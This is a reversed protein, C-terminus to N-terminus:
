GNIRSGFFFFPCSPTSCFLTGLSRSLKCTGFIFMVAIYTSTIKPYLYEVGIQPAAKALLIALILLVLVEHSKYSERLSRMMTNFKQRRTQVDNGEVPDVQAMWEFFSPGLRAFRRRQNQDSESGLSHSSSNIFSNRMWKPMVSFSRSTRSTSSTSVSFDSKRQGEKEQDEDQARKKKKPVDGRQQEQQQQHHKKNLSPAQRKLELPFQEQTIGDDTRKKKPVNARPQEQRQQQHHHHKPNLSPAPRMTELPFQEYPVEHDTEFLLGSGSRSLRRESVPPPPPTPTSPQISQQQLRWVAVEREMLAAAQAAGRAPPPLSRTRKISGRQSNSVNNSQNGRYNENPPRPM